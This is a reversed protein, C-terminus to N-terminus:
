FSRRKYKIEKDCSFTIYNYKVCNQMSGSRDLVVVTYIPATTVQTEEKHKGEVTIDVNYVGETDTASVTKTLKVDGANEISGISNVPDIVQGKVYENNNESAFVRPVYSFSTVFITVALLLRMFKDLKEKIM